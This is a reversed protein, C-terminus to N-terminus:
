HIVEWSAGTGQKEHDLRDAIEEVHQNQPAIDVTTSKEGIEPDRVTGTFEKGINVPPIAMNERVATYLAHWSGEKIAFGSPVLDEAEAMEQHAEPDDLPTWVELTQGESRAELIEEVGEEGSLREGAVADIRDNYRDVDWEVGVSANESGDILFIETELDGFLTEATRGLEPDPNIVQDPCEDAMWVEGNVVKEGIETDGYDGNNFRNPQFAIAHMDNRAHTIQSGPTLYNTETKRVLDYEDGLEMEVEDIMEHTLGRLQTAIGNSQLDPDIALARMSATAAVDPNEWDVDSVYPIQGVRTLPTFYADKYVDVDLVGFGVPDGEQYDGDAETVRAVVAVNGHEIEQLPYSPDKREPFMYETNGYEAWAELNVEPIAEVDVEELLTDPDEYAKVEVEPGKDIDLDAKYRGRATAM